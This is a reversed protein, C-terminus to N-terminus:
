RLIKNHTHQTEKLTKLVHRLKRIKKLLEDQSYELTHIYTDLNDVKRRLRNNHGLNKSANYAEQEARQASLAADSANSASVKALGDLEYLRNDLDAKLINFERIINQVRLDKMNNRIIMLDDNVENLLLGISDSDNQSSSKLRSITRSDAVVQQLNKSLENRMQPTYQRSFATWRESNLTELQTVKNELLKLKDQSVCGSFILLSTPILLATLRNKM